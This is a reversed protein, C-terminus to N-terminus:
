RSQRRLAKVLADDPSCRCVLQRTTFRAARQVKTATKIRAAM